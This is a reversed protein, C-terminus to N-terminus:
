VLPEGQLTARAASGPAINLKTTQKHELDFFDYAEDGGDMDQQLAKM